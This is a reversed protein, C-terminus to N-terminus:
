RPVIAPEGDPGVGIRYAPDPAHRTRWDADYRDLMATTDINGRVWELLLWRGSPPNRYIATPTLTTDERVPM